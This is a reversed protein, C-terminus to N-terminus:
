EDELRVMAREITGLWGKRHSMEQPLDKGQGVSFVRLSSM